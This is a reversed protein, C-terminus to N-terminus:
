RSPARRRRGVDLEEKVVPIVQEAEGKIETRGTALAVTDLGARALGTQAATRDFDIPDFEELIQVIRDREADNRAIVSLATRGERLNTEYWNRDHEPVNSGFLWEWFSQMLRERAREAVARSGYVAVLTHGM